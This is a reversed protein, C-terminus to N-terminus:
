TPAQEASEIEASNDAETHAMNYMMADTGSPAVQSTNYSETYAAPAEVADARM